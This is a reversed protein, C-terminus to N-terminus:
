LKDLEQGQAAQYNLNLLGPDNNGIVMAFISIHIGNALWEAEYSKVMSNKTKKLLTEAGYKGRLGSLLREFASDLENSDDHGSLSLMVQGLGSNGFYFSVTYPNSFLQYNEIKAREDLGTLLEDGDKEFHADPYLDLVQGVTMGAETKQWLPQSLATTPALFCLLLSSIVSALRASPFIM